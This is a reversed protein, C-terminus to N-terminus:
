LGLKRLFAWFSLFPHLLRSHNILNLPFLLLVLSRLKVVLFLNSDNAERKSYMRDARGSGRSNPDKRLNQKQNLEDVCDVELDM